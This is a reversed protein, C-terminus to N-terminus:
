GTITQGQVSHDQAAGHQDAKESTGVLVYNGKQDRKWGPLLPILSGNSESEDVIVLGSLSNKALTEGESTPTATNFNDMRSPAEPVSVLLHANGCGTTTRQDQEREKIKDDM